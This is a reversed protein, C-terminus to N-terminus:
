IALHAFDLASKISSEAGYFGRGVVGMVGWCFFEQILELALELTLELTKFFLFATSALALVAM